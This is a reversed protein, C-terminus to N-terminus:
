DGHVALRNRFIRGGRGLYGTLLHDEKELFSTKSLLSEWGIITWKNQSKQM